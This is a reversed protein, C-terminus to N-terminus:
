RVKREGVRTATAPDNQNQRWTPHHFHLVFDGNYSATADDFVLRGIRRWNRFNRWQWVQLGHTEGDDTVEVDFALQRKLHTSPRDRFIRMIEDRFDLLDGEIRTQGSAVLLRMFGPARTPETSVKGLEAVDYLQRITPQQDVRNFVMGTVALVAMGDLRRWSTLNPANRLEVDNIYGTSDGGIDQQTIFSATRLPAAHAPDTTPFLKGAMALSRVFDRRTETCCTSYRAVVLAQSGGRFYGSYPTDETIEWRGTLCIGNPHLLRRFGRRDPGWRLDASSDVSRAVAQEFFYPRGLALLNRLVNALTVAYTPMRGDEELTGPYPQGFVAERVDAFRSGAYARDSEVLGEIGFEGPRLM